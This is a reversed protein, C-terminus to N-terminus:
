NFQWGAIVISVSVIVLAGGALRNECLVRPVQPAHRLDLKATQKNVTPWRLSKRPSRQPYIGVDLTRLQQGPPRRLPAISMAKDLIGTCDASTEM